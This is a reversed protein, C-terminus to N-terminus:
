SSIYNYNTQVSRNMVQYVKWMNIESTVEKIGRSKIDDNAKMPKKFNKKVNNRQNNLIIIYTHM